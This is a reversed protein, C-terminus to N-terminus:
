LSNIENFYASIVINRDFEREVNKRAALGMEKKTDYPLQIFAEMKEVLDDVNKQKAMHGTKGHEVVERCGSKDTTFLDAGLTTRFLSYM